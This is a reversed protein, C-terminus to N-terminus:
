NEFNLPWIEFATLFMSAQRLKIEEKTWVDYEDLSKTLGIRSSQYTSRKIEFESNSIGMNDAKHLLCMNGIRNTFALRGDEDWDGWEGDEPNSPMIHELWVQDSDLVTENNEHKEFHRLLYRAPKNDDFELKTFQSKLHEYDINNSQFFNSIKNKIETLTSIHDIGDLIIKAWNCYRQYLSNSARDSVLQYWVYLSECHGILSTMENDTYGKIKGALLMTLHQKAKNPFFELRYANVDSFPPEILLSYHKSADVLEHSLQKIKRPTNWEDRIHKSLFNILKSKTKREGLKGCWFRIVFDNRQTEKPLEDNISDWSRQVDEKTVQDMNQTNTLMWYRLLDTLTLDQGRNNTTDFAHVAEPLSTFTAITMYSNDCLADMMQTIKQMGRHTGSSEIIDKIKKVFIWYHQALKRNRIGRPNTWEHEPTCLWDLIRQDHSYFSTLVNEGDTKTLFTNEYNKANYRFQEFEDSSKITNVVAAALAVMTATRQQGDLIELRPQNIKNVLIITHFLYFSRDDDDIFDMLDQWLMEARDKTWSYSRQIPPIHLKNEKFFQRIPMKEINYIPMIDGNSNIIDM